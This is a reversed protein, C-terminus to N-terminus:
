HLQPSIPQHNRADAGGRENGALHSRHAPRHHAPHRCRLLPHLGAHRRLFRAAAGRDAGPAFLDLIGGRVAFEGVERVTAVRDFGSNELRAILANMDVQNGTRARFTQAEAFARPPLRQMLANATTLVVSRHPSKELAAMAALAEVRRAVTDAGPSVRDYPLCDWAPLELVPLGPAAFALAEGLAPLRQGDRAVFIVPGDPAAEASLAALAFAEFGEAVGDVISAGTRDKRLGLKDILSM